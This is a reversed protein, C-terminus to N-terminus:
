ELTDLLGSEGSESDEKFDEESENEIVKKSM